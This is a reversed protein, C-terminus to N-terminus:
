FDEQGGQEVPVQLILDTPESPIDPYSLIPEVASPHPFAKASALQVIILWVVLLWVILLRVLLLLWVSM